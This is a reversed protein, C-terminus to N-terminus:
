MNRADVITELVRRMYGDNVPRIVQDGVVHPSRDFHGEVQFASKALLWVRVARIRDLPIAPDIVGGDEPGIRGDKNADDRVDIIGDNNSDIHLDLMNDNDSDVAWVAHPGSGWSDLRGDMDADVGYALGLACVNESLPQRGGGNDWALYRRGINNDQRIRFNCHERNRNRNREDLDGNEDLDVTYFLAPQGEPDLGTGVLGYRRVDVLGFRGSDEPDFGAYRIEQAIIVLAGRLNQQLELRLGNNRSAKMQSVYVSYVSGIAVIGVTLAILVELLTFGVQVRRNCAPVTWKSRQRKGRDISNGAM